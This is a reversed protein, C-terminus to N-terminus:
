AHVADHSCPPRRSRGDGPRHHAPGGALAQLGTGGAQVLGDGSGAVRTPPVTGAFVLVLAAAGLLVRRWGRRASPGGDAEGEIHAVATERM